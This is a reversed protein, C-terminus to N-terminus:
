LKSLKSELKWKTTIDPDSYHISSGVFKSGYPTENGGNTIKSIEASKPGYGAATSAQVTVYYKTFYRLNYMNYNLVKINSICTPTSSRTFFYCVRYGKLEGNRSNEAPPKWSM